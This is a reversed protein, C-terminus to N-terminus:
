LLAAGIEGAQGLKAPVIKIKKLKPSIIAAKLHKKVEAMFLDSSGMASGGIVIIEPDIINVIGALALGLFKGVEQYAKVALQDGRYAEESLTLPNNQTLQHYVNELTMPTGDVVDVILGNIEGASGHVGRYVEHQISVAGGIGTGLTVGIANASNKAAGLALEALLFCHTDNDIVVPLQYKNTLWEGLKVGNLITLNQCHLIKGEKNEAPPREVVGPVGVGIKVISGGEKKDATAAGKASTAVSASNAFSSKARELLPDILAQLIVLFKDLSDTPTALKYDAVVEKKALDFLVSSM